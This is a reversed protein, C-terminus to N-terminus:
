FEHFVENQDILWEFKREDSCSESRKPLRIWDNNMFNDKLSGGTSSFFKWFLGIVKKSRKGVNKM